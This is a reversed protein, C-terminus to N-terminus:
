ADTENEQVREFRLVRWPHYPNEGDNLDDAARQSLTRVEATHNGWTVRVRDGAKWPRPDADSM